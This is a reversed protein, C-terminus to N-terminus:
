GKKRDVLCLVIEYKRRSECCCFGVFYERFEVLFWSVHRFLDHLKWYVHQTPTVGKWSCKDDNKRRSLWFYGLEPKNHTTLVYTLNYRGCVLCGVLTCYGPCARRPLFKKRIAVNNTDLKDRKKGEKVPWNRTKYHYFLPFNYKEVRHTTSETQRQFTPVYSAQAWSLFVFVCCPPTKNDSGFWGPHKCCQSICQCVFLSLFFLFLCKYKSSTYVCCM